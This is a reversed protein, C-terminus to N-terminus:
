FVIKKGFRIKHRNPLSNTKKNYKQLIIFLFFDSARPSEVTLESM